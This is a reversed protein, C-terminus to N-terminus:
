RHSFRRGPPPSPSRGVVRLLRSGLKLLPEDRGVIAFPPGNVDAMLFYTVAAEGVRSGDLAELLATRDQQLAHELGAPCVVTQVQRLFLPIEASDFYRVAGPPKAPAVVSGVPFQFALDVIDVGRGLKVRAEDVVHIQFQVDDSPRVSSGFNDVLLDQPVLPLLAKDRGLYRFPGLSLRLSDMSSSLATGREVQDVFWLKKSMGRDLHADVPCYVLYNARHSDVLIVWLHAFM